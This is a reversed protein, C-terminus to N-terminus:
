ARPFRGVATVVVGTQLKQYAPSDKDFLPGADSVECWGIQSVGSLRKQNFAVRVRRRFETLEPQSTAKAGSSAAGGLLLVAVPYGVGDRLNTRMEARDQEPGVCAVVVCPLNVRHLDSEVDDLAYVTLEAFATALATKVADRISVHYDTVAPM